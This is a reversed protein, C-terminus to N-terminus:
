YKNYCYILIIKFLTHMDEFIDAIEPPTVQIIQNFNFFFKM